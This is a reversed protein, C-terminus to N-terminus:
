QENLGAGAEESKSRVMSMLRFDRRVKGEGLIFVDHLLSDVSVGFYSHSEALWIAM